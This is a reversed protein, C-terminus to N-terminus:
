SFASRSNPASVFGHKKRNERRLSNCSLDIVFCKRTGLYKKTKFSLVGPLLTDFRERPFRNAAASRSFFSFFRMSLTTFPSKRDCALTTFARAPCRATKKETVFRPALLVDM